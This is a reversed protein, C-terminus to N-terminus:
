GGGELFRREALLAIGAANDSSFDPSAFYVNGIKGLRERIYANRMVGGAYLIPLPRTKRVNESLLFLTESLVAQAYLAVNERSEGEELMAKAQNELGSLNCLLGDVRPRPKKPLSGAAALKELEGGCPFSLGLSVGIRDIAQGATLDASGGIKEIAGDKLLVIETTGGAVYFAVCEGEILSPAGASWAAAALHGRQHSFTFLPVGGISSVAKAASVGALFCPMYSGAADRPSVSVGVADIKRRGLRAFAEPLQRTHHFVADSQRLGKEGAAVPLPIRINEEVEGDRVLAVSTTYNSTDIGLALPM